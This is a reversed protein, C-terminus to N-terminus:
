NIIQRLLHEIEETLSDIASSAKFESLGYFAEVSYGNFEGAKVKGWVEDNDVKTLLFWTGDPHNDFASPPNMGIKSDKIFGGVTYVDELMLQKDHQGNFSDTRKNKFYDYATKKIVDESFRIFYPKGGNGKRLIPKNPILAPGILLRQEEDVLEFEFKDEALAIYDSQIAPNDVLSITHVGDGEGFEIEYIPIREM